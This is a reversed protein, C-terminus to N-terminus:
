RDGQEVRPDGDVGDHLAMGFEGGAELAQEAGFGVVLWASPGGLDLAGCEDGLDQEVHERGAGARDRGLLEAAPLGVGAPELARETLAIGHPPM